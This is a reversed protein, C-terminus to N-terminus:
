SIEKQGFGFSWYLMLCYKLTQKYLFFTYFDKFVSFHLSNSIQKRGHTKKFRPRRKAEEYKKWFILPRILRKIELTTGIRRRRKRASSYTKLIMIFLAQWPLSPWTICSWVKQKELLCFCELRAEHLAQDRKAIPKWFCNQLVIM